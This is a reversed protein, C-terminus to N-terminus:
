SENEGSLDSKSNAWAAFIMWLLCDIAPRLTKCLPREVKLFFHRVTHWALGNIITQTPRLGPLTWETLVLRRGNIWMLM